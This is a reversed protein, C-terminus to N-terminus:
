FDIYLKVTQAENSTHIKLLYFGSELGKLPIRSQLLLKQKIVEKGDITYIDYMVDTRHNNEQLNIVIDESTRDLFYSFLTNNKSQMIEPISTINANTILTDVNSSIIENQARILSKYDDVRFDNGMDFYMTGLLDKDIIFDQKRKIQNVGNFYWEVNKDDVLINQNPDYNQDTINGKKFIDKYGSEEKGNVLLIGYSLLMKNDPFGYKKFNNYMSEYWDWTYTMTQPGYLQFTFFDIDDILSKDIEYSVGHLSLSFSKGSEKTVEDILRRVTPNLVNYNYWELDVDLGDFGKLITKTDNILRDVNEKKNLVDKWGEGDPYVLAIRLKSGRYGKYYSRIIESIGVTSQTDKGINSPDDGKWYATMYLNNGDRVDYRAGNKADQQASTNRLVGWVMIEDMKGDFGKGIILPTTGGLSPVMNIKMDKGSLEITKPAKYETFDVGITIIDSGARSSVESLVTKKPRLYVGLYHWKKVDVKNKLTAITGCLNVVIARDKESGLKISFLNESESAEEKSFITAGEQWSDIYIWAGFSANSASARCFKDINPMAPTFFVEGDSAIMRSNTGHFDMVGTHGEFTEMYDVNEAACSNDPYEMKVSGDKQIKASLLILDNTMLFMDRTINPRDLFRYINTYGTVIRYRFNPNDAVEKRVMGGHFLGHYLFKYDVLYDCQDQDCKWYAILSDYNSNFKNLTNRWYFESQELAKKWVRIEDIQGKFGKGIIGGSTVKPFIAALHGEVQQEENNVFAKVNGDSITLTLQSWINTPLNCLVIALESGSKLVLTHDDITLSLNSQEFLVAGSTIEQPNIWMQLSGEPSDDLEGITAIEIYGEGNSNYIAYNVTQAFLTCYSVFLFIYICLRKM